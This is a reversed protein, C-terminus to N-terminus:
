THCPWKVGYCPYLVSYSEHYYVVTIVARTTVRRIQIVIKPSRMKKLVHM